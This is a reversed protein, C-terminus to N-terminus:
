GGRDPTLARDIEDFPAQRKAVMAHIEAAADTANEREAASLNLQKFEAEDLTLTKGNPDVFVDLCLDEASVSDAEIRPPRTINCYWGKLQAGTADAVRFINFWKAAYFWERFRDGRCLKVYGLDRDAMAFVADICVFDSGREVVEGVYRLAEGGNADLKIVTFRSM